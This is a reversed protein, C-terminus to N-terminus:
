TRQLTTNLEINFSRQLAINLEIIFSKSTCYKVWHELELWWSVAQVSLKINLSCAPSGGLAMITHHNSQLISSSFRRTISSTAKPKEEEDEKKKKKSNNECRCRWNSRFRSSSCNRKCNNKDSNSSSCIGITGISNISSKRYNNISCKNCRSNMSSRIFSNNTPKRRLLIKSSSTSNSMCNTISCNNCQQIPSM